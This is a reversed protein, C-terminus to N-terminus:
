GRLWEPHERWADGEAHRYVVFLDNGFKFSVSEPPIPPGLPIVAAQQISDSPIRSGVAGFHFDVLAYSGDQGFDCIFCLHCDPAGDCREIECVNETEGIIPIGITAYCLESDKFGDPAAQDSMYSLSQMDAVELTCPFPSANVGRESLRRIAKRVTAACNGLGIGSEAVEDYHKEMARFLTRVNHPPKRAASKAGIGLTALPDTAGQDAKQKSKRNEAM